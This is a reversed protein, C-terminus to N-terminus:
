QEKPKLDYIAKQDQNWKRIGSIKSNCIGLNGHLSKIYTTLIAEKNPWDAAIYDKISPPQEVACTTLLNDPTQVFVYQTNSVVIAEPAAVVEKKTPNISCGSLLLFTFALSIFYIIKKM